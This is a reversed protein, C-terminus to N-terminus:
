LLHKKWFIQTKTNEFVLGGCFLIPQLPSLFNDFVKGSIKCISISSSFNELHKEQTKNGKNPEFNGFELTRLNLCLNLGKLDVQM